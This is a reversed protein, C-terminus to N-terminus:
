ADEERHITIAVSKIAKVCMVKNFSVGALNNTM